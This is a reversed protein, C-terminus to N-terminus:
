KKDTFFHEKGTIFSFVSFFPYSFSSLLCLLLDHYSIVMHNSHSGLERSLEQSNRSGGPERRRLLVLVM